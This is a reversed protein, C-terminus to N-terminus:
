GKGEQECPPATVPEIPAWVPFYVETAGDYRSPNCPRKEILGLQLAADQTDGDLHSEGSWWIEKLCREAFKRLRDRESTLKSVEQILETIEQDTM